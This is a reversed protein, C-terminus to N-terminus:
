EQVKNLTFTGLPGRSNFLQGEIVSGNLTGTISIAPEVGAPTVMSLERTESYYRALLNKETGSDPPFDLRRYRGKLTPRFKTEGDSNQGAPEEVIFLKVEIPFPDAGIEANEVTGRYVGVVTRMIKLLKQRDEVEAETSSKDSPVQCAVHTLVVVVAVLYQIFNKM